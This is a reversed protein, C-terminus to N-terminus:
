VDDGALRQSRAAREARMFEVIDLTVRASGHHILIGQKRILAPATGVKRLLVGDSSAAVELETGPALNFRDRLQKPVVVRGARDITTTM